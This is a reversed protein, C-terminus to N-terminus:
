CSPHMVVTWEILLSLHSFLLLLPLRCLLSEQLNQSMKEGITTWHVGCEAYSLAHMISAMEGIHPLLLYQRDVGFCRM